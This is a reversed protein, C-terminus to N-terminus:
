YHLKNICCLLKLNRFCPCLHVFIYFYKGRKGNRQRYIIRRTEGQYKDDTQIKFLQGSRKWKSFIYCHKNKKIISIVMVSLFKCRFELHGTAPNEFTERRKIFHELSNCFASTVDKEGGGGQRGFHQVTFYWKWNSLHLTSQHTVSFIEWIFSVAIECCTFRAAGLYAM